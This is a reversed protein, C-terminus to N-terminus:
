YIYAAYMTGQPGGATAAHTFAIRTGATYYGFSFNGNVDWIAFYGSVAAYLWSDYTGNGGTCYASGTYGSGLAYGNAWCKGAFAANAHNVTVSMNGACYKGSTAFIHQGGPSLTVSQGEMSQMSGTQLEKGGAGSFFTKPYLVDGAGATAEGLTSSGVGGGGKFNLQEGDFVFSAWRGKAITDGDPSQRGCYANVTKGNVAFQDGATFDATIRAIGNIGSGTFKHTKTSADYAHTYINVLNDGAIGVQAATVKHPNTAKLHDFFSSFVLMIKRFTNTLKDGSKINTIEEDGDVRENFAVQMNSPSVNQVNDLGLQKKTVGHPNSQDKVHADFDTKAAWGLYEGVVATVNEADGVAVEVRFLTRIFSNTTFSPIFTAKEGANAYAYLIEGDDPDEAIIGLERAEFGEQLSSNDFNAALEVCGEGREISELQASAREDGLATMKEPYEPQPGAGLKMGTFTITGGDLAKVILAKGADTLKIEPFYM